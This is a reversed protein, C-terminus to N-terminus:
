AVEARRMQTGLVWLMDQPDPQELYDSAGLDMAELYCHMDLVRAIVLVPVGPHLQLSKELVQRGEFAASGQGVIVFSINETELVKIGEAVSNCMLIRYGSCCLTSGYTELDHRDEFVLLVTATKMQRGGKQPLIRTEAANTGLMHVLRSGKLTTDVLLVAGTGYFILFVAFLARSVRSDLEHRLLRHGFLLAAFVLTLVSFLERTTEALSRHEELLANLAPAPAVVKTALEGTAVALYTMGTGLVMLTLASGLFLRSKTVPVAIGVIVFLPAVLLLIIPFHVIFHHLGSWDPSVHFM